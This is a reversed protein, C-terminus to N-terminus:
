RMRGPPRLFDRRYHARAFRCLQQHMVERRVRFTAASLTRMRRLRRGQLRLQIVGQTSTANMPLDMEVVIRLM